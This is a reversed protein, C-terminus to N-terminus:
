VGNIFLRSSTVPQSLNNWVRAAAVPFADIVLMIYLLLMLIYLISQRVTVLVCVCVCVIMQLYVIM